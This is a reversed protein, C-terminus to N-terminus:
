KEEQNKNKRYRPNERNYYRSQQNWCIDYKCGPSNVMQEIEDM